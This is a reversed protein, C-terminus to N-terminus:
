LALNFRLLIFFVILYHCNLKVFWCFFRSHQQKKLKETFQLYSLFFFNEWKFVWKCYCIKNSFFNKWNVIIFRVYHLITTPFIIFHWLVNDSYAVARKRNEVRKKENEGSSDLSIDQSIGNKRNKEFRLQWKNFVM